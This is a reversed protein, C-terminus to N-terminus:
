VVEVFKAQGGNPHEAELDEHVFIAYPVEPGGYVIKGGIIHSGESVVDIVKGSSKLAGTKVPVLPQTEDFTEQLEFQLAERTEEQTGRIFNLYRKNAEVMGIVGGGEFKTESM